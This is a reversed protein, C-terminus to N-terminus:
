GVSPEPEPKIEPEPEIEPEVESEMGDSLHSCLTQLKFRPIHPWGGEEEMVRLLKYLEQRHMPLADQFAGETVERHLRELLRLLDLLAIADGRCSEVVGHVRDVVDSLDKVGSSLVVRGDGQWRSDM